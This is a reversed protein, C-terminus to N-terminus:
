DRESCVVELLNGCCFNLWHLELPSPSLVADFELEKFHGYGAIFLFLKIRITQSHVDPKV